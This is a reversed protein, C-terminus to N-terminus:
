KLKPTYQCYFQYMASFTNPNEQEFEHWDQLSDVKGYGNYFNSFKDMTQNDLNSFGLWCLDFEDCLTKIDMLNFQREYQHFLLDVIGSMSYFDDSDIINKLSGNTDSNLLAQRIVKIQEHDLLERSKTLKERLNRISARAHESYLSIKIFGGPKLHNTLNSLATKYDEIHHLVGSCEVIDFKKNKIDLKLLDALYFEINHLSYHKSKFHGYALSSQSLDLATVKTNEFHKAINIAHRGTGCGAILVDVTNNFYRDPIEVNPYVFSLAKGYSTRVQEDLSQWQPYPFSEYQTKVQSDVPLETIAKFNVTKLKLLERKREFLSLLEDPWAQLSMLEKAKDLSLWSGYMAFLMLAGSIDIPTCGSKDLSQNILAMLSDVMNQEADSCPLIYETTIGYQAIAEVLALHKKDIHGKQTSYNLVEFRMAMILKEVHSSKLTAKRLSWLFLDCHALEEFGAATGTDDIAYKHIILSTVLGSLNHTNADTWKLYTLVDQELEPDYFDASILKACKLLRSRITSDNGHTKVLERFKQFAKVINGSEALAFPYSIEALTQKPSFKIAQEFSIAAQEYLKEAMQCHGVTYWFGGNEPELSLAQNIAQNAATTEGLELEIRALLNLCNSDIHLALAKSIHERALYFKEQKKNHQSEAQASRYQDYAALRETKFAQLVDIASNNQSTNMAATNAM